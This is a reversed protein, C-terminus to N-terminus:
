KIFKLARGLAILGAFIVVSLVMAAFLTALALPIGSLGLAATGWWALLTGPVAAVLIAVVSLLYSKVGGITVQAPIYGREASSGRRAASPRLVTM